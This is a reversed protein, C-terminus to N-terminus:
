QALASSRGAAVNSGGEGFMAVFSPHSVIEEAIVRYGRANPHGDDSESYLREGQELSSRLASLPLLHPIGRADFFEVFSDTLTREFDLYRLEAADLDGSQEMVDGYVLRKSPIVITLFAIGRRDLQSKISLLREQDIRLGEKIRPDSTDVAMSELEIPLFVTRQAPVADFAVRGPRRAAATFDDELNRMPTSEEQIALYRV